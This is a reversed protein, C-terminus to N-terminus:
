SSLADRNEKEYLLIDQEKINSFPDNIAKIWDESGRYTPARLVYTQRNQIRLVNISTYIVKFDGQHGLAKIATCQRTDISWLAVPVAASVDQLDFADDFCYLFQDLTLVLFCDKWRKMIDTQRQMKEFRAYSACAPPLGPVKHSGIIGSAARQTQRSRRKDVTSAELRLAQQLKRAKKAKRAMKRGRWTFKSTGSSNSSSTGERGVGCRERAGDGEAPDTSLLGAHIALERRSDGEKLKTMTELPSATTNANGGNTATTERGNAADPNNSNDEDDEDGDSVDDEFKLDDNDEDDRFERGLMATFPAKVKAELLTEMIEVHPDVGAIKLNSRYRLRLFNEEMVTLQHLISHDLQYLGTLLICAQEFWKQAASVMTIAQATYEMESMWLDKRAYTDDLVPVLHYTKDMILQIMETSIIHYAQIHGQEAQNLRDRRAAIDAHMTWFIKISRQSEDSHTKLLQQLVELTDSIWDCVERVHEAADIDPQLLRGVQLHVIGCASSNYHTSVIMGLQKSEKFDSSTKTDSAMGINRTVIPLSQPFPEPLSKRLLKSYATEAALKLKFYDIFYLITRRGQDIDDAIDKFEAEFPKVVLDVYNTLIIHYDHLANVNARKISLLTQLRIQGEDAFHDLRQLMAKRKLAQEALM